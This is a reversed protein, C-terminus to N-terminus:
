SITESYKLIVNLSFCTETFVLQKQLLEKQTWIELERKRYETSFLKWNAIITGRIFRM